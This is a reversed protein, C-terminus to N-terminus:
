HEKRTMWLWRRIVVAHIFYVRMWKPSLKLLRRSRLHTSAASYSPVARSSRRAGAAVKGVQLDTVRARSRDGALDLRDIFGGICVTTGPIAVTRKPDWPLAARAAESLAEARPVGGFPIEAWSRQDPLPEESLSLATAALEVAEARKREWVAPPPVPRSEGWRATVVEAAQEIAQAIAEPSAGAFRGAGAIELQTM